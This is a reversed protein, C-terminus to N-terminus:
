PAISEDSLLLMLGIAFALDFIRQQSLAQLSSKIRCATEKALSLEMLLFSYKSFYSPRLSKSLDCSVLLGLIRTTSDKCAIM